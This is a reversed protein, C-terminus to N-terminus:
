KKSNNTNKTAKRKIKQIKKSYKHIQAAKIVSMQTTSGASKVFL